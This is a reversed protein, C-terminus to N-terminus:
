SAPTLCPHWSALLAEEYGQKRHTAFTIAENGNILGVRRHGLDTLLKTAQRFAGRNDIDLWAYGMRTTALAAM